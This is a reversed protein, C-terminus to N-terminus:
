TKLNMLPQREVLLPKKLAAKLNLLPRVVLLLQKKLATKLRMRVMAPLLEVPLAKARPSVPVQLMEPQTSNCFFFLYLLSRFITGKFLAVM